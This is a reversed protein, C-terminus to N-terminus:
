NKNETKKTPKTAGNKLDPAETVETVPTTEDVARSETL